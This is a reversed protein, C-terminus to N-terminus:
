ARIAKGFAEVLEKCRGEDLSNEWYGDVKLYSGVILGDAVSAFEGINEPTVGSGVWVPMRVAQKVALLEDMNAESGTEGGTVIVGDARFFAAARATAVIDVDATLAHASHKKKIDTVIKIREAGIQKRYRLLEGAQADMQGEDAIHSFVFGEARIFELGTAHAIALAEQNAGALVQLGIPQDTLARVEQAVTALTATVEPGVKRNLYPTDHMNELIIGDFGAQLLLKAEAVAMRRIEAPSFRNAPTGPLAQVHVMGWLACRNLTSIM